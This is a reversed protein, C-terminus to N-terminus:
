IRNSYNQDNTTSVIISRSQNSFASIWVRERERQKLYTGIKVKLFKKKSMLKIKYARVITNIQQLWNM